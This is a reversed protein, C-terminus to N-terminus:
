SVSVHLPLLYKSISDCQVTNIIIRYNRESIEAYKGALMLFLWKRMFHRYLTGSHLAHKEKLASTNTEM